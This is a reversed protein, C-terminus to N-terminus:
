RLCGGRTFCLVLTSLVIVLVNLSWMGYQYRPNTQFPETYQVSKTISWLVVVIVVVCAVLPVMFRFRAVLGGRSDGARTVMDVQTSPAGCPPPAKEEVLGFVQEELSPLVRPPVPSPTQTM